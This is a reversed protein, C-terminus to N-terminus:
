NVPELIEIFDNQPNNVLTSIEYINLKSAPYAKFMKTLEKEDTKQNIWDMEDELKLIVPMRDHIKAISKNPQTTLISFSNVVGGEPDNWSDCIGAFSFIDKEKLEIRYPVRKKKKKDWEYFGDAPILCRNRKFSTRFAPKSAVTESRANILRNGIKPDKSWFPILGWKSLTLNKPDQSTIVYVNQGPAINYRPSFKDRPLTVNYRKKVKEFPTEMSFRGCM